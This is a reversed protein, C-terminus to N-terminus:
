NDCLTIICYLITCPEWVVTNCEEGTYLSAGRSTNRRTFLHLSWLLIVTLFNHIDGLSSCSSHTTRHKRHSQASTGCRHRVAHIHAQPWTVTPAIVRQGTRKRMNRAWEGVLRRSTAHTRIHYHTHTNSGTPLRGTTQELLHAYPSVSVLLLAGRGRSQHFAASSSHGPVCGSNRM